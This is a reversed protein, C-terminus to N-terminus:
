ALKRKWRFDVYITNKLLACEARFPTQLCQRKYLGITGWLEVDALCDNINDFVVSRLLTYKCRYYYKKVGTMLATDVTIEYIDVDPRILFPKEM